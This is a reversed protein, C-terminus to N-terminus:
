LDGNRIQEALERLSVALPDLARTSSMIDLANATGMIAAVIREREEAVGAAYGEEKAAVIATRRREQENM